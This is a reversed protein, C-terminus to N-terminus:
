DSADAHATFFAAGLCLAIALELLFPVVFFYKWSLISYGLFVLCFLAVLPRIRAADAKSLSALQWFLIAEALFSISIFLGYGFFFDWYTRTSGMVVFANSKMAAVATQQPGPPTAGFVGGLTHGLAHLITLVSAARLFPAPKM